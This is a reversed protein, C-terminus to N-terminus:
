RAGSPGAPVLGLAALRDGALRELGDIHDRIAAAGGPGLNTRVNETAGRLGAWALAAGTRADSLANPNGNEGATQAAGMVVLCAEATRLPVDTARTMAVDVARKREAKEEESAKPLRYAAVVADYAASDEDVLRRLWDGTTRMDALAADLQAREAPDGTRTKTMRCVMTVLAAGAAGALAAASGGGPTPDPAAFRDLLEEAPLALLSV